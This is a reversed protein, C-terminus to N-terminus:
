AYMDPQCIEKTVALFRFEYFFCFESMMYLVCVGIIIYTSFYRVCFVAVYCTSNRCIVSRVCEDLLGYLLYYM